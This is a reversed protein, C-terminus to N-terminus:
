SILLKEYLPQATCPRNVLPYYPSGSQLFHTSVTEESSAVILCIVLWTALTTPETASHNLCGIVNESREKTTNNDTRLKVTNIYVVFQDCKGNDTSKNNMSIVDYFTLFELPGELRLSTSESCFNQVNETADNIIASLLVSLPFTRYNKELLLSV